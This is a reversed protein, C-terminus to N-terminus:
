YEEMRNKKGLVHIMKAVNSRYEVENVRIRNAIQLEVAINELLTFIHELETYESKTLKSENQNM